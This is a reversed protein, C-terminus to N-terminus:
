SLSTKGIAEVTLELTKELEAMLVQVTKMDGDGAATEVQLCVDCLALASINSAAGKMTHVQMLISAMDDSNAMTVHLKKLILPLQTSSLDLLEKAFDLDGGIRPLMDEVDVLSLSEVTTIEDDTPEECPQVGALWSDLRGALEGKKVPKSLYDNMGAALCKERDGKMANATMAIIPVDRNYVVSEPSRIIAAAEFGDMVPMQCDMLVLDYDIMELAQVAEEGNAVVDCKFGLQNLIGQAVKQNIINDEALLIRATRNASSNVVTTQQESLRVLQEVESESCREFRANFWFTSGKGMESTVGIEGGMLEALQKCIALGLGTGGYKRSTSGSAQTFPEFIAALRSAPIGIGTDIIEFRVIACDDQESALSANVIVSGQSTFKIANGVLNTVIQRVRGPDGKLYQPVDPEMRCALKLGAEDARQGFMLTTEELTQRLDFDLLEIDMKGSEIKSFDLIDNILTLLHDGSRSVTEAYLRQKEDLETDLLLGTMGIVGNMPTRIEHSMTALFDGKARTAAEAQEKAYVLQEMIIKKETINEKVAIFHTISGASDRLPSITAHEWFLSGDKSKNHFEGQWIKGSKITEWLDKYTSKPTNGSKLVRPNRGVAEESTYGTLESFKPNVFEIYGAVDTIVISVPTQEVARSLKLLEFERRRRKGIDRTVGVLQVFAGDNDYMGNIIIETWVSSGDKCLLELELLVKEVPIGLKVNAVTEGLKAYATALSNPAIVEDLSQTIAEEASYGRIRSISQSIFTLRGDLNMTWINDSTNETLLRFKAERDRLAEELKRQENIDTLISLTAPRGEWNIITACNVFWIARADKTILRFEYNRGLPEEGRLRAWHREVVKDRDDPHLFVPFPTSTLEQESYGTVRTAAPNVMCAKGDQIVVIIESVCEVLARYKEESAQLSNKLQKETALRRSFKLLAEQLKHIDVPKILYRDIGMNVSKMLYDNQEFATLVIIPVSNDTERIKEAMALGDMVPMLIDTLIIDPHHRNFAEVGELGNTATILNGVSRSLFESLEKRSDEDDEVYLLTLAKLNENDLATTDM